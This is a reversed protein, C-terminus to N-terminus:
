RVRTLAIEELNIFVLGGETAYVLESGDPSFILDYVPTTQSQVTVPERNGTVDWFVIAGDPGGTALWNGDPSFAVQQMQLIEEKQFLSRNNMVDWVILFGVPNDVPGCAIALQKGDPSYALDFIADGRCELEFTIAEGTAIDWRTITNLFVGLLNTSDPSFSLRQYTIGSGSQTLTTLFKGTNVDWVQVTNEGVAVALTSGDSSLALSFPWEEFDVGLKLTRLLKGQSLGIVVVDGNNLRAALASSDASFDALLDLIAEPWTYLTQEIGDQNRQVDITRALYLADGGPEYAMASIIVPGVYPSIQTDTQSSSISTPDGPQITGPPPTVTGSITAAQEQTRQLDAVRTELASVTVELHVAPPAPADIQKTVCAALLLLVIVLLTKTRM